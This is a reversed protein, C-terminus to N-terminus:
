RGTIILLNETTLGNVFVPWTSDQEIELHQQATYVQVTNRDTTLVVKQGSLRQGLEVRLQGMWNLYPQLTGHLLGVGVDM